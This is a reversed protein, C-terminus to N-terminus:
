RLFLLVILLVFAGVVAFLAITLGRGGLKGGTDQEERVHVDQSRNEFGRMREDTM